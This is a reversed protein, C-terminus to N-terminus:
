LVGSMRLMARAPWAPAPLVVSNSARSCAPPVIWAAAATEVRMTGTLAHILQGRKRMHLPIEEGDPYSKGMAAVPRPADDRNNRYQPRM